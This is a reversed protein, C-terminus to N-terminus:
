LLVSSLLFSSALQVLVAYVAEEIGDVNGINDFIHGVLNRCRDIDLGNLTLDELGDHLISMPNSLAGLNHKIPSEVIPGHVALYAYGSRTTTSAAPDIKSLVGGVLRAFLADKNLQENELKDPVTTFDDHTIHGVIKRCGHVWLEELDVLRYAQVAEYIVEPTVDLVHVLVLRRRTTTLPLSLAPVLAGFVTAIRLRQSRRGWFDFSTVSQPLVDKNFIGSRYGTVLNQLVKFHLGNNWQRAVIKWLSRVQIGCPLKDSQHHSPDRPDRVRSM